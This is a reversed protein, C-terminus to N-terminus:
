VNTGNRADSMWEDEYEDKEYFLWKEDADPVADEKQWFLKFLSCWSSYIDCDIWEFPDLFSCFAYGQGVCASWLERLLHIIINKILGHNCSLSCSEVFSSLFVNMLFGRERSFEHGSSIKINFPIVIM